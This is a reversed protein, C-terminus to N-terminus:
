IASEGQSRDFYLGAVEYYKEIDKLLVLVTDFQKFKKCIDASLKVPEDLKMWPVQYQGKWDGLSYLEARNLYRTYGSFTREEDDKTKNRGWMVFPM